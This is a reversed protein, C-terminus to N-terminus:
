VLMPKFEMREGVSRRHLFDFGLKAVQLIFHQLRDLAEEVLVVLPGGPACIEPEM